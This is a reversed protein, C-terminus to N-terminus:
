LRTGRDDEDTNVELREAWEAVQTVGSCSQDAEHRECRFRRAGYGAGDIERRLGAFLATGDLWEVSNEKGHTPLTQLLAHSEADYVKIENSDQDNTMTVVLTRRHDSAHVGSTAAAIGVFALAASLVKFRLM